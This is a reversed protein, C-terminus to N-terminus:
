EAPTEVSSYTSIENQRIVSKKKQGKSNIKGTHDTLLVYALPFM